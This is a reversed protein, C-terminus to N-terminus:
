NHTPTRGAERGGDPQLLQAVRSPHVVPDGQELLSRLETRVRQGARHQLRPREVLQERVPPRHVARRPRSRDLLVLHAQQGLREPDRQRHQGLARDVVVAVVNDTQAVHHSPQALLRLLEAHLHKGPVPRHLQQVVLGPVHAAHRGVVDTDGLVARGLGGKLAPHLQVCLHSHKALAAAAGECLAQHGLQIQIGLALGLRVADPELLQPPDVRGHVLRAVDLVGGAPGHITVRPPTGEQVM